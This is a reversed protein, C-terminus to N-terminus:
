HEFWYNHLCGHTANREESYQGDREEKQQSGRISSLQFRMKPPLRLSFPKNNNCM